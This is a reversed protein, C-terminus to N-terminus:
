VVTVHQSTIKMPWLIQLVTACDLVLVRSALNKHDWSSSNQKAEKKIMCIGILPKCIRDEVELTYGDM